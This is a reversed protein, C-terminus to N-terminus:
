TAFQGTTSWKSHERKRFSNFTEVRTAFAQRVATAFRGNSRPCRFSVKDRVGEMRHHNAAASAAFTLKEKHPQPM